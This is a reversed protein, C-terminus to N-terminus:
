SVNHSVELGSEDSSASGSISCAHHLFVPLQLDGSGRQM